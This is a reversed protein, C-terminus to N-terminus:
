VYGLFAGVDNGDNFISTMWVLVAHKDTRIQAEHIMIVLQSVNFSKLSNM